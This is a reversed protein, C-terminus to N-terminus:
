DKVLSRLYRISEAVWAQELDITEQLTKQQPPWLELIVNFQANAAQLTELLWPIDLQGQGAPQGEVTFGMMHWVRQAVFEKLHLCITFPALIRTVHKWGEPVALSNVTDLVVGVQPSSVEELVWRLEEAPLKGNELGLKIKESELLPLIKHLYEPMDKALPTEGHVEPVTRLLTSGIRKALAVQRSLHDTELGRTGLELEIRWERAQRIFRELEPEPLKDLPLNPGVQVVSVGLERAKGLLGIATLPHEPQEDGIGISWMYCFTGIGLKM